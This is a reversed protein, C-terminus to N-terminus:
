KAPRRTNDMLQQLYLAGDVVVEDGQALGEQVAFRGDGVTVGTVSRRTFQSPGTRVFVQQKGDSLFVAKAPVDVGKGAGRAMSVTVYMEAKLRREPNRVQARVKLTRAAPDLADAIHDVRGEFTTDPWAASRIAIKQGVRFESASREPADIWCWLYTPDTVVFMPPAQQDPRSEFGPNLNREVVIGSVPSRLAFRQDVNGGAGLSRLRISSRTSEAQARALDTQAQELDKRAIVGADVLDKARAVARESQALDASARAAEAQATGLEPSALWALPENAKVARGPTAIIQVIRGALPPSVRATHDEDWALRAPYSVTVDQAPGVAGTVIKRATASEVPFRVTENSVSPEDNIPTVDTKSCAACLLAAALAVSCSRTRVAAVPTM